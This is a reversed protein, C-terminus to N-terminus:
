KFSVKSVKIVRKGGEESVVGTVEGEKSEKCIEGHHKKHSAADFYYVVEKGGEEVVIVTACAKEKKLECRACTIKGKLTVEKDAAQVLGVVALLAIAALVVGLLRM